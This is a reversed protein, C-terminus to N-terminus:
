VGVGRSLKAVVPFTLTFNAGSGSRSAATITGGHQEVIKRCVALGLGLSGMRTSFGPEFIRPLHEPSIGPGNDRVALMATTGDQSRHGAVEIWGGEPMARLANLLLNLLVQELCHRDAPFFVGALSNQLSLVTRSQHALPMFFDRAWELLQGLDVPVRKPEPLSHFGLVNNVTAALTRLGAQVHEVWKRCDPELDSEALLGAFLELSGLPNRIEHALVASMEALAQERRIKQQAEELHKRESVDRVIFVSSGAGDAIPAHRVALWRLAGREGGLSAEQERNERRARDLLERVAAPLRSIPSLAPGRGPDVGLLRLAEPNARSIEGDGSVAVVGCPLGELIRDLHARIRRNEELSLALDAHSKELERRLREVESRLMAYSRELSDAVAAFSRFAHLLHREDETTATGIHAKTFSPGVPLLAEPEGRSM